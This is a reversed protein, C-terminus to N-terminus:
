GRRRENLVRVVQALCGVAVVSLFVSNWWLELSGFLIAAAIALIVGGAALALRSPPAGHVANTHSDHEHIRPKEDLSTM